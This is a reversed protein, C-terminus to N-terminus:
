SANEGAQLTLSWGPSVLRVLWVGPVIFAAARILNRPSSIIGSLSIQMIVGSYVHLHTQSITPKGLPTLLEILVPTLHTRSVSAPVPKAAVASLIAVPVELKNVSM